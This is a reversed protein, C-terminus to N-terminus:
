GVNVGQPQVECKLPLHCHVWPMMHHPECRSPSDIFVACYVIAAWVDSAYCIQFEASLVPLVGITLLCSIVQGAVSFRPMCMSTVPHVALM